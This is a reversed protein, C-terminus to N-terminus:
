RRSHYLAMVVGIWVALVTTAILITRLSFRFNSRLRGVRAWLIMAVLGISLVPWLLLFIVEEM